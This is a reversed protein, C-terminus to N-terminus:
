LLFRDPLFYDLSLLAFGSLYHSRFGVRYILSIVNLPILSIKSSYGSRCSSGIVRLSILDSGISWIDLM